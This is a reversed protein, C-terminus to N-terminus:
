YNNILANFFEQLQRTIKGPKGDGVIWNDIGAVPTIEKKTSTIFFESFTKLEKEKIFEEKVHISLQNALEIVVSRTIGALIKNSVPATCLVNDKIAFFNTHTGETIIGDKVLIAEGASAEKAKQNALINPLLSVSKIDCRMWRIDNFLIAKIGERQEQKNSEFPSASIFLTPEVDQEPFSHTRSISSGRTIQLYILAAENIRNKKILEYIIEELEELERYKIRIENLSRKLRKLHEKYKFLKGGYTRISEYVGDAFMFGRDFPTIIVEELPIYKGNYFVIM